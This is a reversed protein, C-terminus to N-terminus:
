LGSKKGIIQSKFLSKGVESGRRYRSHGTKTQNRASNFLGVARSDSKKLPQPKIQTRDKFQRRLKFLEESNTVPIIYKIIKRNKDLETEIEKKLIDPIENGRLDIEDLSCNKSLAGILTRWDFCESEDYSIECNRASIKRM